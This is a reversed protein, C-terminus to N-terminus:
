GNNSKSRRYFVRHIKHKQKPGNAYTYYKNAEYQVKDEFIVRSYTDNYTDIKGFDISTPLSGGLDGNLLCMKDKGSLSITYNNNSLATDFSTIVYIGQEFWIIDPYESNIYNKVGIELSFKQKIGWYFENIKVDKAVMSFNCTRRVASSGDGNISGGTIKGEIQEIPQEDFTLSIVKAYIKKHQYENLQHLFDNDLLYKKM